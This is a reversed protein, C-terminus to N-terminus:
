KSLKKKWSLEEEANGEKKYIKILEVISQKHEKKACKIFLEKAKNVDKPIGEGNNYMAALDYTAGIHDQNSSKEFWKKADEYDKEVGDGKVLMLGMTWQADTNGQLASKEIWYRAKPFIKLSLYKYGIALQAKAEKTDDKVTSSFKFNQNKLSLLVQKAKDYNKYDDASELFQKTLIIIKNEKAFFLLGRTANIKKNNVLNSSGNPFDYLAFYVNDSVKERKIIEVNSIYKKFLNLAEIDLVELRQTQTKNFNNNWFDIRYLQGIDDLFTVYGHTKDNPNFFDHIKYGPSVLSPVIFIFDKDPPYYKGNEYTGQVDIHNRYSGAIDEIIDGYSFQFSFIAFLFYFTIKRNM